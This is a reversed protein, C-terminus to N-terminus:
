AALKLQYVRPMRIELGDVFRQVDYVDIHYHLKYILQGRQGTRDALSLTAMQARARKQFPPPVRLRSCFAATL